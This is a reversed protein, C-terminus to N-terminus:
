RNSAPTYMPIVTTHPNRRGFSRSCNYAFLVCARKFSFHHYDHAQLNTLQIDWGTFAPLLTPEAALQRIMEMIWDGGVSIAPRSVSDKWDVHEAPSTRILPNPSNELKRLRANRGNLDSM